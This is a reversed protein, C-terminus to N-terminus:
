VTLLTSLDRIDKLKGESIRGTKSMDDGVSLTKRGVYSEVYVGGAMEGLILKFTNSGMDVVCMKGTDMGGLMAIGGVILATAFGIVM